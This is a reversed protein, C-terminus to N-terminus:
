SDLNYEVTEITEKQTILKIYEPHNKLDLHKTEYLHDLSSLITKKFRQLYGKLSTNTEARRNWTKRAQDKNSFKCTGM